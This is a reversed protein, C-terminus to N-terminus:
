REWCDRVCQQLAPSLRPHSICLFVVFSSHHLKCIVMRNNCFVWLILVFAPSLFFLIHLPTLVVAGAAAANLKQAFRCGMWVSSFHKFTWLLEGGTINSLFRFMRPELPLIWSTFPPGNCLGIAGLILAFLHSEELAFLSLLYLVGMWTIWSGPAPPLNLQHFIDLTSIRAVIISLSLLTKWCCPETMVRLCHWSRRWWDCRLSVNPNESANTEVVSRLLHPSLAGAHGCESSLRRRFVYKHCFSLFMVSCDFYEPTWTIVPWDSRSQQDGRGMPQDKGSPNLLRWSIAPEPRGNAFCTLTVNSGENVIIDESVKYISAPVAPVLVVVGTNSSCNCVSRHKWTLGSRPSSM